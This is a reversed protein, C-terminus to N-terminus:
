KDRSARQRVVEYMLIGAAVSVNLSSVGGGRNLPLSVVWDCHERVLRRMGEGESGFVLAVPDRFDVETWRKEADAEVGVIWINAQKLLEIAQVLNTVRVVPVDELAGTAAKAVTSTLGVSRRETIILGEVGAAAATRLVAGLNHPDEVQDLLVFFAPDHKKAILDELSAYRKAGCVAVVGQHAKTRALRDLALNKEFRLSVSRERALQLIQELRESRAGAAIHLREVPRGRSRLLSEVAHIGFVVDIM